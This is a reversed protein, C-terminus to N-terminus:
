LQFLFKKVQLLFTEGGEPFDHGADDIIVIQKRHARCSRYLETSHHASIVTDKEGHVFLTPVLEMKPESLLEQNPFIKPCLWGIAPYHAKAVHQISLYPSILVLGGLRGYTPSFQQATHALHCSPGTGLSKGM